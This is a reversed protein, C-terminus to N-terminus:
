QPVFPPSIRVVQRLREAMQQTQQVFENVCTISECPRLSVRRPDRRAVDGRALHSAPCPFQGLLHEVSIRREIKLRRVLRFNRHDDRDVILKGVGVIAEFGDPLCQRFLRELDDDYIVTGIIFRHEGSAPIRRRPGRAACHWAVEPEDRRQLAPAAAALPLYRSNRLLSVSTFCPQSSSSTSVNSCTGFIPM